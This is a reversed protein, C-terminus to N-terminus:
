PEVGAAAMEALVRANEAEILEVLAAADSEISEMAWRARMRVEREESYRGHLYTTVDQMLGALTAEIAREAVEWPEPLPRSV